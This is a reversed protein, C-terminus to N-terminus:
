DHRRLANMVNAVSARAVRDPEAELSRLTEEIASPETPLPIVADPWDFNTQFDSCNPESGLIVPGGAISEFQPESHPKREV